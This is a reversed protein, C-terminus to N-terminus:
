SHRATEKGRLGRAALEVLEARERDQRLKSLRAHLRLLMHLRREGAREDQLLLGAEKEGLEMIGDHLTHWSRLLKKREEATM